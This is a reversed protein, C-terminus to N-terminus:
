KQAEEEQDPVYELLEGPQCNLYKCIKDLVDVPIHKASGTCLASVTPQRIGTEKSMETQNKERIALMVKTKFKIM